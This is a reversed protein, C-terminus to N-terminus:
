GHYYIKQVITLLLIVTAGYLKVLEHVHKARFDVAIAVIQDDNSLGKGAMFQSSM